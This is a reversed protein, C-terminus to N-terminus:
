GQRYTDILIRVYLEPNRMMTDIVDNKIKWTRILFDYMYVLRTDEVDSNNGDNM